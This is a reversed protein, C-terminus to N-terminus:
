KHVVSYVKPNNNNTLTVRPQPRMDLATVLRGATVIQNKCVKPTYKFMPFCSLQIENHSEWLSGDLCWQVHVNWLSVFSGFIRVIM